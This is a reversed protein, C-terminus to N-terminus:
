QLKKDLDHPCMRGNKDTKINVLCDTGLGALNVGKKLSYHGVDSVM